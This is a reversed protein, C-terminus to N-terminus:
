LAVPFHTPNVRLRSAAFAALKQRSTGALSVFENPRKAGILALVKTAKRSQTFGFFDTM